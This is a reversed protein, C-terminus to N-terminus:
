VGKSVTTGVRTDLWAIIELLVEENGFEKVLAHWMNNVLRLTKDSTQPMFLHHAM